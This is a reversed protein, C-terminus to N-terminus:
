ISKDIPLTFYFRSGQDPKSEVWIKGGNKEIFDKCLLLGLGTGQENTTGRTTFNNTGFLKDINEAAIGIGTDAIWITAIGRRIEANISIKDGKRCFKIANSVLNRLVAQIMDMDAYVVTALNINNHLIVGKDASIQGFSNLVYTVNDKIDFHTANIATGELQSKSWQLLNDVLGSTYGINKSLTPLFSKFEEDSVMGDSAMSLIDMLSLLPSRLDHSIISFLRDKLRNLEHLKDESQKRDTIDRFLMIKGSYITQREFLSTLTVSFFRGDNLKIEISSNEQNHVTDNLEAFGPFLHAPKKGIIHDTYPGIIKRMEPNIDIVRNQIDLVLIGEQLAEIIKGRAIPVIDFLKFGLLGISIILSSAIFAFPTLDLHGFPRLNLLYSFNVMWPIFAGFLIIRNQRKIFGDAKRFRSIILYMGWGLMLYFYVTHIKYWIAVKLSLLPFPGNNDVGVSAYHLHHWRNTWVMLLTITPIIFILFWNLPTLWREKGTFGIVFIIWLPPAYSIGLYEINIWFLMQSLTDSSLECGYSIAWIAISLMMWGFWRVAGGTRKFIMWSVGVTVLGSLILTIAFLNNPLHM